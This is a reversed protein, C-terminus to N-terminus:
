AIGKVITRLTLKGGCMYPALQEPAWAGAMKVGPLFNHFGHANSDTPMNSMARSLKGPETSSLCDFRATAAM